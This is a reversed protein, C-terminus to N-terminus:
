ATGPSVGADEGDGIAKAIGRRCQFPQSIGCIASLKADVPLAQDDNTVAHTAKYRRVQGRLVGADEARRYDRPDVEFGYETSAVGFTSGFDHVIIDPEAGPEV